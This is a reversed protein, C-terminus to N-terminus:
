VYKAIIKEEFNQCAFNFLARETYLGPVRLFLFLLIGVLAYETPIMIDCLQKFDVPRDLTMELFICTERQKRVSLYKRAKPSLGEM